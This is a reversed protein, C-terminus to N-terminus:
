PTVRGMKKQLALLSERSNANEPDLEVAKELMLIAEPIREAMQLFAGANVYAPAFAPDLKIAHKAAKLAGELDGKQSLVVSSNAPYRPNKPDAKTGLRYVELAEDMRGAVQLAIGLHTYATEAHYGNTVSQRLLGIAKEMDGKSMAITGLGYLSFPNGPEDQLVQLYLFEAQSLNGMKHM